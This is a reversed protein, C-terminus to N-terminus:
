LYIIEGVGPAKLTGNIKGAKDLNKLRRVPEGLPEDALDFTGYHMPVFTHAGLDHFARVAEDPTMHSGKMIYAPKYAGIPMLAIDIVPFLSGTKSFHPAYATDGAFYITRKSGKLIYSGWLVENIDKTYRQSWHQAPMMTVAPKGAGTKCTQYWGAEQVILDKRWKKLLTGMRLPVLAETNDLNLQKISNEHLHDRHSHSLLLYDINKIEDIGCPLESLRKVFLPGELCPDTLFTVGDLRIFWTAHGLWVLMDKKETFFSNGKKVNLSFTDKRKEDRQPNKSFRWKLITNFSVEPKSIENLFRGERFPNGPYGEQILPLAENKLYRLKTGRKKALLKDPVLFALLAVAASQIFRRRTLIYKKM